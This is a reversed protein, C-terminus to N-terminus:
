VDLQEQHESQLGVGLFTVRRTKGPDQTFQAHLAERFRPRTLRTPDRVDNCWREYATWLDGSMATAGTQVVCRAELFRALPLSETRYTATANRVVEPPNLGERQWALCGRVARAPIGPAEDRLKDKLQGAGLLQDM